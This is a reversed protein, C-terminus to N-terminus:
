AVGESLVRVADIHDYDYVSNNLNAAARRRWPHFEAEETRVFRGGHEDEVVAGLGTPETPKPPQIQKEIQSALARAVAPYNDRLDRVILRPVDLELVIADKPVAKHTAVNYRQYPGGAEYSSM